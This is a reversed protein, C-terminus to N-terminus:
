HANPIRMTSPALDGVGSLVAAHVRATLERVPRPITAGDLLSAPSSPQPSSTDTTM